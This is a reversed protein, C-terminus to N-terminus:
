VRLIVSHRPKPSDEVLMKEIGYDEQIASLEAQAEALKEAWREPMEVNDRKPEPSDEVAVEEIEYDGQIASLEAQAEALEKTWREPMEGNNSNVAM